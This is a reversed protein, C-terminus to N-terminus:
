KMFDFTASQVGSLLAQDEEDDGVMREDWTGNKPYSRSGGNPRAEGAMFREMTVKIEQLWSSITENNEKM